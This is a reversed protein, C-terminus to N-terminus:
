KHSRKLQYHLIRGDECLSKQKLSLARQDMSLTVFARQYTAPKIIQCEHSVSFLNGLVLAMLNFVHRQPQIEICSYKAKRGCLWCSSVQIQM